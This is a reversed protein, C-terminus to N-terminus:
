KDNLKDFLEQNFNAKIMNIEIDALTEGLKLQYLRLKTPMADGVNSKKNPQTWKFRTVNKSETLDTIIIQEEFSLDKNIENMLEKEKLKM